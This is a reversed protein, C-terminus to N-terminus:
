LLRQFTLTPQNTEYYAGTM